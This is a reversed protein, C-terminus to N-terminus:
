MKVSGVSTERAPQVTSQHEVQWHVVSLKNQQEERKKQEFIHPIDQEFVDNKLIFLGKLM